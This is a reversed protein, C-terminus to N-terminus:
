PLAGCKQKQKPAKEMLELIVLADKRKQEETIQKIFAHVSHETKKTKLEAM